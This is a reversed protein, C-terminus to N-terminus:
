TGSGCGLRSTYRPAVAVRLEDAVGVGPGAQRRRRLLRARRGHRRRGGTRVGVHVAVAAGAQGAAVLLHRHPRGLCPGPAVRARCDDPDHEPDFYSDDYGTIEIDPYREKLMLTARECSDSPPASSSSRCGRPRAGRWCRSSCTAARYRPACRCGLLRSALVMPMGDALSLFSAGTRTSWRRLASRSRRRPRREADARLRRPRQPGPRRHSRHGRGAGRCPRPRASVFVLFNGIFRGSWQDGSRGAM